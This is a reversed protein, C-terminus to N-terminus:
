TLYFRRGLLRSALGLLAVPLGFTWGRVGAAYAADLVPLCVIMMGVGRRIKAPRPHRCVSALLPGTLLVLVALFGLGAVRVVRACSMVPLATVVLLWGGLVATQGERFDGAVEFRSLTTLSVVYFFTLVPFLFLAPNVAALGPSMGLLLNLARCGGMVLPGRVNGSKAWVDYVVIFVLLVVALVLARRGALCAGLLGLVFLLGLLAWAQLPTVRGSPLPRRPREVADRERDCLDNLVCGGAYLAVSCLFLGGCGGKAGDFAGIIFVGALVDAVATFLNPLRILELFAFVKEAARRSSLATM